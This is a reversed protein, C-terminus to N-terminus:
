LLLVTSTLVCALLSYGFWQVYAYLLDFAHMCGADVVNKVVFSHKYACICELFLWAMAYMFAVLRIWAHLLDMEHAM